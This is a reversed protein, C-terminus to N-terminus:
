PPTACYAPRVASPNFSERAAGSCRATIQEVKAALLRENHGPQADRQPRGYPCHEARRFGFILQHAFGAFREPLARPCECLLLVLFRFRRSLLDEVLGVM